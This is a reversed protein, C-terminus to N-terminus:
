KSNTVYLIKYGEATHKSFIAHVCGNEDFTYDDITMKSHNFLIEKEWSGTSKVAHCVESIDSNSFILHPNGYIDIRLIHHIGYRDIKKWRASSTGKMVKTYILGSGEEPVEWGDGETKISLHIINQDSVEISKYNLIEYKDLKYLMRCKFDTSRGYCYGVETIDKAGSKRLGIANFIFEGEYYLIDHRAIYGDKNYDTSIKEVHLENDIITGHYIVHEEREANIFFHIIDEDDIVLDVLYIKVNGSITYKKYDDQQGNYYIFYTDREDPVIAFHPNNDRDMIYNSISGDFDMIKNCQWNSGIKLQKNCYYISNTKLDNSLINLSDSSDLVIGIPMGDFIEEINERRWTDSCDYMNLASDDDSNRGDKSDGDTFCSIFLFMSISVFLLFLYQILFWIRKM